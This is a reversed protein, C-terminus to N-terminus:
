DEDPVSRTNDDVCSDCIWEGHLYLATEDTIHEGCVSCKPCREARSNQERDYSTFFDLNDMM